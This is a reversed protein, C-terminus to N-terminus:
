LWMHIGFPTLAGIIGGVVVDKKDHEGSKVRSYATLAAAGGGIVGAWLGGALFLLVAGTVASSTHASPMADLDIGNPKVGLSTQNFLKKLGLSIVGQGGVALFWQILLDLRGTYVMMFLAVIPLAYQMVDGYKTLLDQVSKIGKIYDWIQTLNM